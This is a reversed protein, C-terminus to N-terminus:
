RQSRRNLEMLCVFLLGLGALELLSFCYTQGEGQVKYVIFAIAVILASAGNGAKLIKGTMLSAIIKTWM